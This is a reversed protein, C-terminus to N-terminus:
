MEDAFKLGAAEIVRRSNVPREDVFYGQGRRETLRDGLIAKAHDMVTLGDDADAIIEGLRSLNKHQQQRAQKTPRPVKMEKIWRRVTTLSVEYHKAIQERTLGEKERLFILHERTPTQNTM